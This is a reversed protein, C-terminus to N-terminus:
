FSLPKRRRGLNDRLSPPYINRKQSFVDRHTKGNTLNKIRINGARGM